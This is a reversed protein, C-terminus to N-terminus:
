RCIKKAKRKKRAVTCMIQKWLFILWNLPFKELLLVLLVLEQRVIFSCNHSTGAHFFFEVNSVFEFKARKEFRYRTHVKLTPQCLFIRYYESSKWIRPYIANERMRWKGIEAFNRWCQVLTTAYIASRGAVTKRISLQFLKQKTEFPRMAQFVAFNQPFHPTHTCPHPRWRGCTNEPSLSDFLSFQPFGKRLCLSSSSPEAGGWLLLHFIERKEGAVARSVCFFVRSSFSLAPSPAKFPLPFNSSRCAPSNGKLHWSKWSGDDFHNKLLVITVCM